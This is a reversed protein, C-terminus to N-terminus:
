KAWGKATNHAAPCACYGAKAGLEESIATPKKTKKTKKDKQIKQTWFKGWSRTDVTIKLGMSNRQTKYSSSLHTWTCASRCQLLSDWTGAQSLQTIWDLSILKGPLAFPLSYIRISTPTLCLCVGVEEECKAISIRRLNDISSCNETSQCFAYALKIRIIFDTEARGPSVPTHTYIYVCM